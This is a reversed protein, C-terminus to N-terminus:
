QVGALSFGAEGAEGSGGGGGGGVASDDEGAARGGPGDGADGAWEDGDQLAAVASTVAHSAHLPALWPCAGGHGHGTAAAAAPLFPHWATTSGRYGAEQDVGQWSTASGTRLNGGTPPAWLLPASLTSLAPGAHQLSVVMGGGAPGGFHHAPASAEFWPDGGDLGSGPWASVGEVGSGMSGEGYLSASPSGSATLVPSDADSRSTLMACEAAANFPAHPLVPAAAAAEGPAPRPRKSGVGVVAPLPRPTVTTGFWGSQAAAVPAPFLFADMGSRATPLTDPAMSGAAAPLSTGLPAAGPTGASADSERRPRKIRLPADPGSGVAAPAAEAHVCSASAADDALFSPAADDSSTSSLDGRLPAANDRRGRTSIRGAAITPGNMARAITSAASGPAASPGDSSASAPLPLAPRPGSAVAGEDKRRVQMCAQLWPPLPTM